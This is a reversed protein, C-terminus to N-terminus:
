EEKKILIAVGLLLSSLAPIGPAIYPSIRGGVGLAIVVENFFFISFAIFVGIGIIKAVGGKRPVSTSFAVGLLALAVFLIPQFLLSFFRTKLENTDLGSSKVIRIYHPMRWVSIQPDAILIEKIDKSRIKSPIFKHELLIPDEDFKNEWVNILDLRGDGLIAKEADLRSVIRYDESLYFVKAEEIVDGNISEANVIWNSNDDKDKFWLGSSSIKINSSHKHLYQEQLSDYKKLMITGYHQIFGVRLLGIVFTIMIVPSIIQWISLGFSRAMIVEYSRAFRWFTLMTAFLISFSMLTQGVDPLKYLSMKFISLMPIDDEVKSARRILEITDFMYIIALLTFIVILFNILFRKGIYLSLTPSKKFM